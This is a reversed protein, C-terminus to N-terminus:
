LLRKDVQIAAVNEAALPHMGLLLPVPDRAADDLAAREQQLAVITRPYAHHGPTNPQRLDLWV